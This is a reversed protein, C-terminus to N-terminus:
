FREDYVSKGGKEDESITQEKQIKRNIYASTEPIAPLVALEFYSGRDKVTDLYLGMIESFFENRRLFFLRQIEESMVIQVEESTVANSFDKKMAKIWFRPYGDALPAHLLVVSRVSLPKKLNLIDQAEVVAEYLCSYVAMEDTWVNVAQTLLFTASYFKEAKTFLWLLLLFVLIGRYQHLFNLVLAGLTGLAGALLIYLAKTGTSAAQFRKKYSLFSAKGTQGWRKVKEFFENLM